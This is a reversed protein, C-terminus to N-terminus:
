VIFFMETPCTVKMFHETFVKRRVAETISVMYLDPSGEFATIINLHKYIKTVSSTLVHLKEDVNVVTREVYM